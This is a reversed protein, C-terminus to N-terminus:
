KDTGYNKKVIAFLLFGSALLHVLYIWPSGENPRAVMVVCARDLGEILFAIAFALFLFDRTRKWFKLFFVGAMISSTVIVGVLFGRIM